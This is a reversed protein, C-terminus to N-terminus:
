HFSHNAARSFFQYYGEPKRYVIAHFKSITADTLIIHNDDKRGVNTEARTLAYNMNGGYSTLYVLHPATLPDGFETNEQPTQSMTARVVLKPNAAPTPAAEAKAANVTVTETSEEEGNENDNSLQGSHPTFVEGSKSDIGNGNNKTSRFRLPFSKGLSKMYSGSTKKGAAAPSNTSNDPTGGMELQNYNNPFTPLSRM